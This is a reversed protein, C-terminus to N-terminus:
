RHAREPRDGGARHLVQNVARRRDGELLLALEDEARSLRRERRDVELVHKRQPAGAGRDEEERGAEVVTGLGDVVEDVEDGRPREVVDAELVREHRAPALLSPKPWTENGSGPGTRLPCCTVRAGSATRVINSRM